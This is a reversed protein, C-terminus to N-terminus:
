DLYDYLSHEIPLLKLAPGLSIFAALMWDKTDGEFTTQGFLQIDPVIFSTDPIPKATFTDMLSKSTEDLLLNYRFVHNYQGYFSADQLSQDSHITKIEFMGKFNVRLSEKLVETLEKDFQYPFTNVFLKISAIEIPREAINEIDMVCSFLRKTLATPYFMGTAWHEVSRKAFIAKFKDQDIDLGPYSFTDFRRERYNRSIYKEWLEDGKSKRLNAYAVEEKATQGPVPPFEKETLLCQLLGRRYDYLADLDVYILIDKNM